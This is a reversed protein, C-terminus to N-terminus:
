KLCVNWAYRFVIDMCARVMVWACCLILCSVRLHLAFCACSSSPLLQLVHRILVMMSSVLSNLFSVLGM